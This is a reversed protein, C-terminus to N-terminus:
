PTTLGFVFRTGQRRPGGSRETKSRHWLDSQATALAGINRSKPAFVRPVAMAIEVMPPARQLGGSPRSCPSFICVTDTTPKPRTTSRRLRVQTNPCQRQTSDSRWRPCRRPASRAPRSDQRWGTKNRSAARGNSCGLDVLGRSRRTRCTSTRRRAPERTCHTKCHGPRHRRLRHCRLRQRRLCHHRARHCRLCM